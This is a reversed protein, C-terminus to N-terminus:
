YEINPTLYEDESELTRCRTDSLELMTEVLEAKAARSDEYNFPQNFYKRWYTLSIESFLGYKHIEWDRYGAMERARRLTLSNYLLAFNSVKTARGFIMRSTM